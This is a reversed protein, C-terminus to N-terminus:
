AILDPTELDPAILVRIWRERTALPALKRVLLRFGPRPAAQPRVGFVECVSAKPHLRLLRCTEIREAVRCRNEAARPRRDRSAARRAGNDRGRDRTSRQSAPCRRLQPACANEGWRRDARRSRASIRRPGPRFGM